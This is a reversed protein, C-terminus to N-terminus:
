FRYTATVGYSRPQVGRGFYNTDFDVPFGNLVTTAVDRRISLPDHFDLANHVFLSVDFADWRVGARVTLLRFERAGPVTPDSNPHNGPDNLPILSNQDSSFQYDVRLYPRRDGWHVAYEGSASINWPSAPLHDGQTVLNISEGLNSLSVTGDYVADTYAVSLGLTLGDVPRVQVDIDGGKGTVNGLNDTFPLGCLLLVDQQINKWKYYYLSSNIQLRGEWLMDKAGIEYNWLSDSRYQRPTPGPLGASCFDPLEPNVGGVRYGKAVSAYLLNNRDAQYNLVFRPTVPKESASSVSAITLGGLLLGSQSVTGTYDNKSARAGVTLKWKEALRFGLEGFLALQRDVLRYEPQTYLVNGPPSPIGLAEETFTSDIIQQTTNEDMRTYFLGATWVVRAAADNSSLRVEQTFNNQHDQFPAIGVDGAPPLPQGLYLTRLVETYDSVAHQRKSFYSTNSTMHAFPLDWDIKIAALYFPDTSASRAAMGNHYVGRAPDSYGIWYAASDNIHSTQVFVSPTITLEDTPKYKLALRGAGVDSWNADRQTIDGNRFDFRDVWGGDRRYYASVRFALKDAVVPGGFAGGFEYNAAGDQVGAFETRAYGTYGNLSPEPMIFRVTGGESGAGFLTGQPGRLVEVRELDFLAPYVNVTSNSMHRTQLPTDDLYIGTTSAGANSQVGRVAIDSSEDNRNGGIGNRQFSVGPTLRTLDDVGRAGQADLKDQALATISMPVDQLRETRRQATVVVEELAPAASDSDAAQCPLSFASVAMVPLVGGTLKVIFRM